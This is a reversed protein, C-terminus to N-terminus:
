ERWGKFVTLTLDEYDNVRLATRPHMSSVSVAHRRVAIEFLSMWHAQYQPARWGDRPISAPPLLSPLAQDDWSKGDSVVYVSHGSKLAGIARDISERAPTEQNDQEM